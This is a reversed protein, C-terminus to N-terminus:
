DTTREAPSGAPRNFTELGARFKADRADREQQALRRELARVRRDTERAMRRTKMSRGLMFLTFLGMPRKQGRITDSFAARAGPRPRATSTM